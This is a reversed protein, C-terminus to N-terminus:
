RFTSGLTSKSPHVRFPEASRVRRHQGNKAPAVRLLGLTGEPPLAEIPVLYTEGNQPCHVGFADVQGKYRRARTDHGSVSYMGFEVRGSRLRGTKCQVRTFTSDDNEILLDYRSASSLPRLLKKGARALAMMVELETLDGRGSTDKVGRGKEGDVLSLIICNSVVLRM